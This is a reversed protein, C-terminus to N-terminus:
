LPTINDEEGKIDKAAGQTQVQAVGEELASQVGDLNTELGSVEESSLHKEGAQEDEKAV